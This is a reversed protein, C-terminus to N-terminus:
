ESSTSSSGNPSRGSGWTITAIVLSLILGALATTLKGAGATQVTVLVAILAVGWFVWLYLRAQGSWTLSTPDGFAARGVAVYIAGLLAGGLGAVVDWMAGADAAWAVFACLSGFYFAGAIDLFIPSSKQM